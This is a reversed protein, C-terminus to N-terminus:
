ISGQGFKLRIKIRFMSNMLHSVVGLRPILRQNIRASRPMKMTIIPMVANLMFSTDRESKTTLRDAHTNSQPTMKAIKAVPQKAIMM